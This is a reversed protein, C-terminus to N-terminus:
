EDPWVHRTGIGFHRVRSIQRKSSRGGTRVGPPSGGALAFGAHWTSCVRQHSQTLRQSRTSASDPHRHYPVLVRAIRSMSLSMCSLDSFLPLFAEQLLCFSHPPQLNRVVYGPRCILMNSSGAGKTHRLEGKVPLRCLACTPPIPRRDCSPCDKNRDAACGVCVTGERKVELTGAGRVPLQLDIDGMSAKQHQPPDVFSYQLIAARHGLLDMRLLYDAYAFKWGECLPLLEPSLLTPAPRDLTLDRRDVLCQRLERIM